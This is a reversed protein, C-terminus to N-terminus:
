NKITFDTQHKLLHKLPMLLLCMLGCIVTTHRQMDKVSIAVASLKEAILGRLYDGQHAALAGSLEDNTDFVCVIALSGSVDKYNVFHTIWKFGVVDTLATDCVKNLANCLLNEIKKDAKRM